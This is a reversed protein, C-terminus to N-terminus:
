VRWSSRSSSAGGDEEPEGLNAHLLAIEGGRELEQAPQREHDALREVMEGRGARQQFPQVTRGLRELEAAGPRLGHRPVGIRM